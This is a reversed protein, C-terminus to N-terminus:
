LPPPISNYAYRGDHVLSQALSFYQHGDGAPANYTAVVAFRFAVVACVCGVVVATKGDFWRPKRSTRPAGHEAAVGPSM